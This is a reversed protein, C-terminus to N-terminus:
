ELKTEDFPEFTIIAKCTQSKGNKYYTKDIDGSEEGSREISFVYNPYIKSLKEMDDDHEYWKCQEYATGDEDIAYGFDENAERFEDIIRLKEDETIKENISFNFTSYYGM